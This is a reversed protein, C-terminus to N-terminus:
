GVEAVEVRLANGASLLNAVPVIWHSFGNVDVQVTRAPLLQIGDNVPSNLGQNAWGQLAQNRALALLMDRLRTGTSGYPIMLVVASPTGRYEVLISSGETYNYVNITGM